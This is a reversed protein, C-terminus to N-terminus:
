TRSQQMMVTNVDQHIPDNGFLNTLVGIRAGKLGSADLADTYSAADAVNRTIPGAADQTSSVQVIGYLSVLGRTPRIGVLSNASAPSRVSNVTDTGTGAAAFNAAIAAGNGGSSGGPTRTLDYPNLTQGGLSSMTTGSMAMEHLNSKALIIAGADRLKGVTEADEAPVFGELTKSSATTPLDKTNYNDKLIVPIGHLPGRAGKEQRELDLQEALTLAEPNVVLIANLAPGQDDYAEIRDLYQQDLQKSTIKGSELAASLDSISSELLTFPQHLYFQYISALEVQISLPSSGTGVSPLPSEQETLEIAKGFIIAAESRKIPANPM